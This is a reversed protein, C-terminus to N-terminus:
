QFTQRFRNAHGRGFLSPTQWYPSLSDSTLWLRATFQICSLWSSSDYFSFDYIDAKSAPLPCGIRNSPTKRNKRVCRSSLSPRRVPRPPRARSPLMAAVFIRLTNKGKVVVSWRIPETNPETRFIAVVIKQVKKPTVFIDARMSFFRSYWIIKLDLLYCWVPVIYRQVIPWRINDPSRTSMM